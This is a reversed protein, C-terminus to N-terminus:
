DFIDNLINLHHGSKTIVVVSDGSEIATNGDPIIAKGNRIVAALLLGKRLKFDASKLPIGLMKCDDYAVFEIAEAMGGAVSFIRQIDNGKENFVTVNRVFRMLMDTSIVTPSVTIDIKVKNLLREYSPLNVKTIISSVGCSWAFLSIVLNKEDEGTLSVCVDSNKIGEEILIDSNVEEAYAITAKPLEESLEMCREKDSELITIQKGESILMEALYKGTTGGGVIFVSKVPKRLLGLKTAIKEVSSKSCIVSVVDHENIVFDGNPVFAKDERKVTCVLMETDFVGRTAKLTKGALPNGSDIDIRLMVVDTSFFAVSKVIGPLGIQRNIEMATDRKPNVIYDIGFQKCIYDRDAVFEPSQLRLAAYRTGLKKALMCVMLNTEDSPTLVVIVDATDAGAKLMVSQSAGSGCVGSVSYKDTAAEVTKKDSDVVTVDHNEKSLMDALLMGTKGLGVIIIKM